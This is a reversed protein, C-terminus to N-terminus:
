PSFSFNPLIINEFDNIYQTNQCAITITKDRLPLVVISGKIGNEYEGDVRTGLVKPLKALRYASAKVKGNKVLGEYKKINSDYPTNIIEVNLAYTAKPDGSVLDPNMSLDLTDDTSKTYGSWTKPYMFNIDGLIASSRYEKLPNKEKETFENDKQSAIKKEAVDVAAAIKSDVNNKYDQKGMYAWVGFGTAGLFLVVVLVLSIVLANLSGIESTLFIKNKGGNM